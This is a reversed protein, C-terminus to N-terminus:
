AFLEEERILLDKTDARTSEPKRTPDADACGAGVGVGFTTLVRIEGLYMSIAHGLKREGSPSSVKM